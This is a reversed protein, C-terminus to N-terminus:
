PLNHQTQYTANELNPKSIENHKITSTATTTFVFQTFILGSILKKVLKKMKGSYYQTFNFLNYKTPPQNTPATNILLVSHQCIQHLCSISWQMVPVWLSLTLADWQRNVFALSLSVYGLNLKVHFHSQIDGWSLM